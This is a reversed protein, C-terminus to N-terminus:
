RTKLNCRFHRSVVNKERINRNRLISDRGFKKTKRTKQQEERISLESENKEESKSITIEVGANLKDVGRHKVGLTEGHGGLFTDDTVIQCKEIVHWLADIIGPMDRRIRDAATYVIHVSVPYDIPHLVKLQKNIEVMAENRWASFRSSPYRHGTRTVIIANKGSPCQGSIKFKALIM